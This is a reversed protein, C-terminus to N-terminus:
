NKDKKFFEYGSRARNLDEDIINYEWDIQFIFNSGSTMPDDLDIRMMTGVIEHKIPKGKQNFVSKIKHGGQFTERYLQSRLRQFSMNDLGPAEKTLSEDSGPAFRNQDLQVWLYKLEHPSNNRYNIKESGVLRQKEDDLHVQINYDVRQQWYKPGPAGSALRSENPSPLLEHIQRFPDEEYTPPQGQIFSIASIAIVILTCLYLKM